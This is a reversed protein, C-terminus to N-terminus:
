TTEDSGEAPSAGSVGLAALEGLRRRAKQLREGVALREAVAGTVTGRCGQWAFEDAALEAALLEEAAAVVLHGRTLESRLRHIQAEQSKLKRHSDSFPHAIFPATM